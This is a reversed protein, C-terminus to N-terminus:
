SIQSRCLRHDPMNFILQFQILFRINETQMGHKLNRFQDATGQLMHNFTYSCIGHLLAVIIAAQQHTTLNGSLIHLEIM